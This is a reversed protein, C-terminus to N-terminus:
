ASVFSKLCRTILIFLFLLFGNGSRQIIPANFYLWDAKILLDYQSDTMVFTAMAFRVWDLDLVNKMLSPIFLM